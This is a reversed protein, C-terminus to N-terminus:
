LSLYRDDSVLFLSRDWLRRTRTPIQRGLTQWTSTAPWSLITGMRTRRTGMIATAVTRPSKDGVM